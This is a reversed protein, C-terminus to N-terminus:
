VLYFKPLFDLNGTLKIYSIFGIAPPAILIFMTPM